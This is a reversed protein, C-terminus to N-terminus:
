VGSTELVGTGDLFKTGSQVVMVNAKLGSIADRPSSAVSGMGAVHGTAASMNPFEVLM